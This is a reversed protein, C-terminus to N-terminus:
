HKILSCITKVHLKGHYDQEIPQCCAVSYRPGHQLNDLQVVSHHGGVICWNHSAATSETSSGDDHKISTGADSVVPRFQLQKGKDDWGLPLAFTKGPEVAGLSIRDKVELPTTNSPATGSLAHSRVGTDTIQSPPLVVTVLSLELAVDTSNVLQCLSRLVEHQVGHVLLEQLVMSQKGISFPTVCGSAPRLSALGGRKGIAANISDGTSLAATKLPIPVYIGEQSAISLARQNSTARQPDDALTPQPTSQWQKQLALTGKFVVKGASKDDGKQSSDIDKSAVSALSLKLTQPQQLLSLQSISLNADGTYLVVGQGGKAASDVISIALRHETSPRSPLPLVLREKWEAVLPQSSDGNEATSQVVQVVRTRPMHVPTYSEDKGDASDGQLQICCEVQDPVAGGQADFSVSDVDVLLLDHPLADKAVTAAAISTTHSSGLRRTPHQPLPVDIHVTSKSPLHVM